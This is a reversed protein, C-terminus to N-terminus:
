ISRENYPPRLQVIARLLESHWESLWQRPVAISREDPFAALLVLLSWAVNVLVQEPTEPPLKVPM